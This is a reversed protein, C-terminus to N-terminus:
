PRDVLREHLAALDARVLDVVRASSPDLERDIRERLGEVYARLADLEHRYVEGADDGAVADAARSSGGSGDILITPCRAAWLEAHWAHRHCAEAFLRGDSGATGGTVIAGLSRFLRENRGQMTQCVDVLEVIGLPDGAATM